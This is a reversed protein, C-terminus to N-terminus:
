YLGEPALIVEMLFYINEILYLKVHLRKSLGQGTRMCPLQSLRNERGGPFCTVHECLKCPLEPKLCLALLVLFKYQRPIVKGFTLFLIDTHVHVLVYVTYVYM